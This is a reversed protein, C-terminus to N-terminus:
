GYSRHAGLRDSFSWKRTRSDHSEEKRVVHHLYGSLGLLITRFVQLTHQTKGNSLQNWKKHVPRATHWLMSCGITSGCHIELTKKKLTFTFRIYRVYVGGAKSWDPFESMEVVKAKTGHRLPGKPEQLPGGLQHSTCYCTHVASASGVVFPFTKTARTVRSTSPGCLTSWFM